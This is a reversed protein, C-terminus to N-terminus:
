KKDEKKEDKDQYYYVNDDSKFGKFNFFKKILNENDQLKKGVFIAAVVLILLIGFKTIFGIVGFAYLLVVLLVCLIVYKNKLIYDIVDKFDKM